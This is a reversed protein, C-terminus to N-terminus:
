ADLRAIAQDFAHQVLTTGTLPRLRVIEPRLRSLKHEAVHYAALCRLSASPESLLAAFLTEQTPYPKPAFAGLHARRRDAPLEEIVALLPERLEVPVLHEFIERAASRRMDDSSAIAEYVSRVGAAPSLIGFARFAHEVAWRKKEDLLDRLLDLEPAPPLEALVDALAAFRAAETVARKAYDQIVREDIALTHDEARMRGLARLIKFETTGDPERALRAVLAAAAARTMFRSITRPLHQRVEIALHPDDLAAVLRELGRRGTAVFVRRVDGRVHPDALLPLLRELDALAPVRAFVQLVVRMVSPERHALLDYLAGRFREHPVNLIAEALAEREASTGDLLQALKPGVVSSLATDGALAVLAAARIAPHPDDLAHELHERHCGTRSAAALAAARINPDAHAILHGLVRTVHPQAASDLMALARLVVTERPHYLVLAPLDGGAHDLLELAALAEIEDPSSAAQVLLDLSSADLDPARVDRRVEGARLMDRFQALYARRILAIAFLWVTGATVAIAALGQAGLGLAGAGFVILAAAAQGGRQGVADIAPKARDRLLTPVALFLIENGVRHLSHRLGGDGLKLALIALWAGTLAFGLATSVLIAPLITLAGGVGLKALLRSTVALQIVLGIVNLGAYVAGFVTALDEKALREALVRKFTLDGITLAITSVLGIVLLLTLYRRSRAPASRGRIVPVPPEALPRPALIVAATTAVGFMLAGATVLHRADVVRGLGAAIASGVLAGLVGGAGIAAFMQKAQGVRVSRDLVTWFCPVVLTAVLGTWVYLAFVASHALEIVVALVTTGIVAAVLFSILMKRPDRVGGWRRVATVALLAVAAIALYAWALREPGLHALFLADRATELLAHATMVCFLVIAPRLATM